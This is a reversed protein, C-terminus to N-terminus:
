IEIGTRYGPLKISHLFAIYLPKLKSTYLTKSKWSVIYDNNQIKKLELANLTPQYAFTNQSRDNNTFYIGSLFFNYDKRTLINLKKSTIKRNFIILKNDFYTKSM